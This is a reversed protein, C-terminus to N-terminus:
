YCDVIVERAPHADPQTSPTCATLIDQLLSLPSNLIYDSSETLIALREDLDLAKLMDIVGVCVSGDAKSASEETVRDCDQSEIEKVEEFSGEMEKWDCRKELLMRIEQGCSGGPLECRVRTAAAMNSTTDLAGPLLSFVTDRLKLLLSCAKLAVPRDCDFLGSVLASTVGQEVLRSLIGAVNSVQGGLYGEEKGLDTHTSMHTHLIYSKESTVAYPHPPHTVSPVLPTSHADSGPRSEFKEPFTKDLLLQVLELTHLKVEWDLDASGQSLVSQMSKMLLSSSSSLSSPPANTSWTSFWSIFYRVVARRAFGETDESLVTVLRRVIDIEELTPAVRQRWSHALTQALATIASARVYSEPDSLAEVLLPATNSDLLAESACVEAASESSIFVVALQGLFEVTSDRVEWRVDCVRKRVVTHLDQKLLNGLSFINTCVSIWKVLAQYSKQLVTPDSDPNHLYEILVTFVEILKEKAGPSNSLGMLAELGCKQLKGCGIVDRCAKDSGTISLDHGGCIWPASIKEQSVGTIIDLPLLLLGIAKATHVPNPHNQDLIAAAAQIRDSPTLTDLMRSILSSVTRDPLPEDSDSSSYATLLVDMLLPSLQSHGATVLEELSDFVTRIVRSRLPPGAQALILILLRLSQLSQHLHTSEGLVLSVKVHELIALTVAAYEDHTTEVALAPQKVNAGVTVPDQTCGHIREKNKREDEMGNQEESSFPQYFVPIHGLLQNSASAVFLSTDTQLQLLPKMLEEKVLFQLALPHQLMSRLGQIWGIRICPDEWLGLDQWRQCDYILSLTSHEQLYIFGEETAVLLGTLKLIFSLVSTDSSANRIVTTIFEVLCPCAELLSGGAKTLGNFWDLLKELSTDDSLGKGYNALVKCVRPLVAVCEGDM